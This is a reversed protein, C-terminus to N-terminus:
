PIVFSSIFDVSLITFFSYTALRVFTGQEEGQMLNRIGQIAALLIMAIFIIRFFAFIMSLFSSYTTQGDAGGLNALTTNAFDEIGSLLVAHSPASWSNLFIPITILVLGVFLLRTKNKDLKTKPLTALLATIGVVGWLEPYYICQQFVYLVILIPFSWEQFWSQPKQKTQSHVLM